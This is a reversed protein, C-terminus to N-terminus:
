FLNRITFVVFALGAVGWILAYLAVFLALVIGAFVVLSSFWGKIAIWIWDEHTM